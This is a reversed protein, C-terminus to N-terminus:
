TSQPCRETVFFHAQRTATSASDKHQLFDWGLSVTDTHIVEWVFLCVMLWERVRSIHMISIYADVYAYVYTYCGHCLSIFFLSSDSKIESTRFLMKEEIYTYNHFYVYTYVSLTLPFRRIELIWFLKQEIGLLCCGSPCPVQPVCNLEIREGLFLARSSFNTTVARELFVFSSISTSICISIRAPSSIKTLQVNLNLWFSLKSKYRSICLFEFLLLIDIRIQVALYRPIPSVRNPSTSYFRM